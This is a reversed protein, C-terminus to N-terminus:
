EKASANKELKEFAAGLTGARPLYPQADQVAHLAEGRNGDRLAQEGITLLWRLRQVVEADTGARALLDRVRPFAEAWKGQDLQGQVLLEQAPGGVAKRDPGKQWRNAMEGLLQLRRAGQKAAGLTHDWEQLLALNGSRALVEVFATWAKEQVRGDEGGTVCRWLATMQASSACEGLVTAVRGRVAPDPDRLLLGELKTLLLKRKAEPVASGDGVARGVAGVVSFRVAASSDDLADVLRDLVTADAVRELAQAAVQRVPESSHRLLGTLVPGADRAGLVGLDEAAEVVVEVAPDDLAKQLTPIVDRLRARGDASAARAQLALSRAAAARVPPRGKQILSYLRELAATDDVRGLGLVASRQVEVSSDNSLKVLAQALVRQRATDAAPLMEVAWAVALARVAPDDQDVLSQVYALREAGPLRNYFQQHLRLVQNRARELDGDLRYARGTQYALRQELWRENGVDKQRAWWAEWRELDSGFNQGSLEALAEVAARRVGDTPDRALLLAIPVAPKRGTRGLVWVAAQRTTADLKADEALCELRPLLDPCPLVALAEAAGQRVGPRAVSLAALLEDLFRGDQLVRVANALALFIEADECQQLGQRVIKEAEPDNAQLLLLAAQSQGRAHQRDQLMERLNGLDLAPSQASALSAALLGCLIFAPRFHLM